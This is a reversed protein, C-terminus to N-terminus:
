NGPFILSNDSDQYIWHTNNTKGNNNYDSYWTAFGNFYYQTENDFFEYRNDENGTNYFRLGTITSGYKIDCQWIDGDKNNNADYSNKIWTMTHETWGTTGDDKKGYSKCMVQSWGTTDKENLYIRITDASDKWYGYCGTDEKDSGGPKGCIAVFSYEGDPDTKIKSGMGPEWQNWYTDVSISYRRFTFNDITNPVYVEWESGQTSTKIVTQTMSYYRQSDADYLYMMTEYKDNDAKNTIWYEAACGSFGHTNDIFTYKTLDSVTTTFDIYIELDQSAYANVTETGELWIAISIDKVEGSQLDFIPTSNTGEGKYYYDGYSLSPTSTTTPVGADTISTIPLYTIGEQVGPMQSPKFVKSAAGDNTSFSIRLADAVDQNDCKVITGAGLYVPTETEGAQLQFDVIVYKNNADAPTGHRFKMSATSTSTNYEMPVFFNRGDSSSVQQLNRAPIIINNVVGGDQRMVLNSGSNIVLKGTEVEGRNTGEVWSFTIGAALVLILLLAIVSMMISTRKNNQKLM